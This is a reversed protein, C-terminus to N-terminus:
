RLRSLKGKVFDRESLKLGFQYDRFQLETEKGTQHNNMALLHPRWFGNEYLRYDSYELTKLADGKRDYYEVKRLQFHKQDIWAVQRSYASGKYLPSREVLDCVLEGCPRESIYSYSYKNLEQGTMDEFAFESGVFPGSKNASSIRKIRKISPLYLWQDDAKLIHAHSLLATGNIDRPATFKVLTRDGIEEAPLEYTTIELKRETERGAANRLVMVLEAKSNAFGRDSRDSRAAIEFAVKENPVDKAGASQALGAAVSAAILAVGFRNKLQMKYPM